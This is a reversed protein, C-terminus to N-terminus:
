QGKKENRAEVITWIAVMFYGIGFLFFSVGSLWLKQFLAFFIGYFLYFAILLEAVVYGIWKQWSPMVSEQKGGFGDQAGTKPTRIFEQPMGLLGKLAGWGVRISFGFVGLIYLPLYLAHPFWNERKKKFTALVTILNVGTMLFVPTVLFWEPVPFFFLRLTLFIVPQIVLLVFICYVMLFSFAHFRRNISTKTLLVDKWLKRFVQLAGFAWREQQIGLLYLSSTLESPVVVDPLYLAKWGRTQARFSIELDESLANHPWGGCDLITNKRWVGASGNYNIFLGLEQEIPKEIIFHADFSFSQILTLASQEPNIFGWRTQIFGIKEDELLYPITKLLFDIPPIFDADFVAIFEGKVFRMSKRLAGTKYDDRETRRQLYIDIDKYILNSIFADIKQSTNDTSDDLIMIQFKNRPYDLEAVAELIRSVVASENYFPLIVTVQPWTSVIPKRFESVKLWVTFYIINIFVSIGYFTLLVGIVVYLYKLFQFVLLTFM